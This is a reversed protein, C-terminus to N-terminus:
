SESGGFTNFIQNQVEFIGLISKVYFRLSLFIISNGCQTHRFLGKLIAWIEVQHFIEENYKGVEGGISVEAGFSFGELITGDELILKAKKKPKPVIGKIEKCM